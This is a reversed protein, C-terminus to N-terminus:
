YRIIKIGNARGYEVAELSVDSCGKLNLIEIRPGGATEVIKRILTGTVKTYPIHLEKLHPMLDLMALVTPNELGYLGMGTLHLEKLNKIVKENSTLLLLDMVKFNDCDMIHLIELTGTTHPLIDSLAFDLCDVHQLVLSKLNPLVPPVSIERASINCDFIHLHEINTPCSWTGYLAIRSLQMVRLNPHCIDDSCVRIRTDPHAGESATLRLEQLKPVRDFYTSRTEIDVETAMDLVAIPVWFPKFYTPERFNSKRQMHLTLSKFNPLVGVDIEPSNPEIFLRRVEIRELNPLGVMTWLM